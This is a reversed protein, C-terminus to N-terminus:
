SLPTREVLEAAERRSGVGLKRYLSKLHSKLTNRSIYLQRAIEPLTDRGTLHQLIELERASLLDALAPALRTAAAKYRRLREALIPGPEVLRGSSRLAEIEWALSGVLGVSEALSLAEAIRQEADDGGVLGSHLLAHNVVLRPGVGAGLDVDRIVRRAGELDGLRWLLQAADLAVDDPTSSGTVAGYVFSRADADRGEAHRVEALLLSIRADLFPESTHRMTLLHELRAAAEVLDTRILTRVLHIGAIAFSTPHHSDELVDMAPRLGAVADDFRGEEIDVFAAAVEGEAVVDTGDLGLRVGTRRSESIWSRAGDLFGARALALACQAPHKGEMLVHGDTALRHELDDLMSLSREFDNRWLGIEIRQNTAMLNATRSTPSDLRAAADIANDVSALSEEHLWAVRQAFSRVVFISALVDDCPDTLMEVRECWRMAERPGETTIMSWALGVAVEADFQVAEPLRSFWNRLVPVRDQVHYMSTSRSLLRAASRYDGIALFLEMADDVHRRRALWEAARRRVRDLEAPDLTRHAERRLHEWVLSHIRFWPGDPDLEVLFPRLGTLDDVIHYPVDGIAHLVLDPTWRDLISATFFVRRVDPELTSLVEADLYAGMEESTALTTMAAEPDARHRYIALQVGAPWGETVALLEVGGGDGIDISEQDLIADLDAADFSLQAPSVSTVDGRAFSRAVSIADHSRSTLVFSVSGALRDVVEGFDRCTAADLEHLDDVVLLTDPEALLRRMARERASASSLSPEVGETGEIAAAILSWLVGPATDGGDLSVWGVPGNWRRAIQAAFVTKGFGAPAVIVVVPRRGRSQQLRGLLATREVIPGRSSPISTKLRMLPLKSTSM